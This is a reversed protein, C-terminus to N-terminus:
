SRLAITRGSSPRFQFFEAGPDLPCPIVKSFIAICDLGASSKSATYRTCFLEGWTTSYVIELSFIGSDDKETGPTLVCLVRRVRKEELMDQRQVVFAKAPPFVELMGAMVGQLYAVSVPALSSNGSVLVGDWYLGNMVLWAALRVPDAERRIIELHELLRPEDARVGKVAFVKRGDGGKKCFFYLEQYKAGESDLFFIRRVKGPEQSFFSSITRGLTTMEEPRISVERGGAFVKKSIRQYTNLMFTNMAEGMELTKAVTWQRGLARVQDELVVHTQFYSSLVSQEEYRCPWGFSFDIDQMRIKFHFSERLLTATGSEKLRGYLLLLERYLVGYPDIQYVERMKKVLNGKICESLLNEPRAGQLTYKELLALKLLSKYPNRAFNVIQWLSAGFFEETPITELEGLDCVREEGYELMPLSSVARKRGANESPPLVWWRPERGAILLATRYFEDKLLLAQASGSGEESLTGFDNARIEELTMVFFHVELDYNEEAWLTVADCKKVLRARLDSDISSAALCVWVDLDSYRNQAVTGISGISYLAAIELIDSPDGSHPRDKSYPLAVDMLHMQSYTPEFGQIRCLPVGRVNMADEFRSSHFLCPLVHFFTDPGAAFTDMALSRRRQNNALMCQETNGMMQFLRWQEVVANVLSPDMDTPLVPPDSIELLSNWFVHEQRAKQFVPDTTDLDEFLCSTPMADQTLTNRMFLSRFDSKQFVSCRVEVGLWHNQVFMAASFDGGEFCCSTLTCSVWLSGVCSCASFHEQEMISEEIRAHHLISVDWINKILHCNELVLAGADVSDFRCREFTSDLFRTDQFMCGTFVCDKFECTGFVSGTFNCHLFRIGEFVVRHFSCSMFVVTKISCKSIVRDELASGEFRYDELSAYTHLVETLVIQKRSFLSVIRGRLSVTGSSPIRHKQRPVLPPIRSKSFPSIYETLVSAFTPFYISDSEKSCVTRIYGPDIRAIGGLLSRSVASQGGAPLYEGFAHFLPPSLFLALLRLRAALEPRKRILLMLLADTKPWGFNLLCRLCAFLPQEEMAQLGKCLAPVLRDDDHVFASGATRCFFIQAKLTLQPFHEALTLILGPDNLAHVAYVVREREADPLPRSVVGELWSMFSGSVLYHQLVSAPHKEERGLDVCLAYRAAPDYGAVGELHANTWSYLHSPARHRFLLVHHMLLLMDRQDHMQDLFSVVEQEPWRLAGFIEVAMLRGPAGFRLLAQACMMSLGCSPAKFGLRALVVRIQAWPAGEDDNLFNQEYLNLLRSIMEPVRDWVRRDDSTLIHGSGQVFFDVNESSFTMTMSDISGGSPHIM